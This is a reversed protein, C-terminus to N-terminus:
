MTINLKEKIMTSLEQCTVQFSGDGEFLITRRGGGQEKAALAAGQASGVAYGISAWLLQNM